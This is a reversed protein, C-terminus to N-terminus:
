LSKKLTNAEAPTLGKSNKGSKSPKSPSLIYRLRTKLFLKLMNLFAAKTYDVHVYIKSDGGLFFDWNSVAM